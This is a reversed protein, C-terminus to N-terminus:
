VRNPLMGWFSNQYGLKEIFKFHKNLYSLLPKNTSMNADEILLVSKNASKFIESAGKLADLEGGEIDLKAYINVNKDAKIFNDLKNVPVSTPATNNPYDIYFGYELDSFLKIKGKRKGIAINFTKIKLNNERVNKRLLDYLFDNPEFAYIELRNKFSKFYNGLIISYKGFSAGMDIFIIKKTTNILDNKIKQILSKTDFYEFAPSVFVLDSTRNKINFIGQYTKVRLFGTGQKMHGSKMDFESRLVKSWYEGTALAGWIAMFPFRLYYGLKREGTKM